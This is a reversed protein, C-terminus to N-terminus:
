ITEKKFIDLVPIRNHFVLLSISNKVCSKASGENTWTSGRPWKSDKIANSYIYM